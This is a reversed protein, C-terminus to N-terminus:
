RQQEQRAHFTCKSDASVVPRSCSSAWSVARDMTEALLMLSAVIGLGFGAFERYSELLGTAIYITMGIAM